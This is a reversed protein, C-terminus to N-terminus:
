KSNDFFKLPCMLSVNVRRLVQCWFMQQYLLLYHMTTTSKSASVVLPTALVVVPLQLHSQLFSILSLTIALMSIVFLLNYSSNINLYVTWSALIFLVFPHFTRVQEGDIITTKLQTFFTFTGAVEMAFLDFLVSTYKCIHFIAVIM